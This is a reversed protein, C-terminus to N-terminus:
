NRRQNPANRAGAILMATVDNISGTERAKAEAAKRVKAAQVLAPKSAVSGPKLLRKPQQGKQQGQGANQARATPDNPGTTKNALKLYRGADRAMLYLAHNDVGALQEATFGYHAVARDVDERFATVGAPEALSPEKQLLLQSEAARLEQRAILQQQQHQALVASAAQKLGAIRQQDEDYADKQMLYESMNKTRLAPDPKQVLPMFLFQDLQQITQLMNARHQEAEQKIAEREAQAAKRTETAEQLRKDIAGEGSFRSKLERITVSQKKGDVTVELEDDDSYTFQEPAEDAPEDAAEQEPAGGEELPEPLDEEDDSVETDPAAPSTTASGVLLAIADQVDSM